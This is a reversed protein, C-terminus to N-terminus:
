GQAVQRYFFHRPRLVSSRRPAKRQFAPCIPVLPLQVRVESPSVAQFQRSSALSCDPELSFFSVRVLPLAVFLSKVCIAAVAGSFLFGFLCFGPPFLYAARVGIHSAQVWCFCGIPFLLLLFGSPFRQTPGPLFLYLLVGTFFAFSGSGAGM